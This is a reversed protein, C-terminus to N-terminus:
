PLAIALEPQAGEGAGKAGDLPLSVIFTTGRPPNPEFAIRGGHKEVVINRAIALGQGTGKGVEKTTFFPDFVRSGIQPAIGCGTDSVSIVAEGEQCRTRVCIEGRAGSTKMVDGIAHAANVLLNLFVQNLDGIHCCVPPLEGFDTVVEAVYKLENRAVILADALAKNLDAPRKEDGGPHAFSKMARVITAVREVGDLSQLLAKPIEDELYQLDANNRAAYIAEVIEPLIKAASAAEVLREYQALIAQREEFADRLFRLNDGVYQIPTNIEHAIGAALQGVAELRQAHRLELELRKQETVDQATVLIAGRGHFELFHDAIEVDLIRGEKSVHKRLGRWPNTPGLERVTRKLRAHDDAPYIDTLYMRLFEEASYGYTRCAADNVEVIELTEVDCVFIAHPIASFLLRFSAERAEMEEVMQKWETVDRSIGVIMQVPPMGALVPVKTTAMWRSEGSRSVREVKSIVPQGSSLIAQHDELIRGSTDPDFYDALSRGVAAAPDEVGLVSASAKNIRIFKDQADIFYIKDPIHDLLIRLLDREHALESQVRSLPCMISREITIHVLIGAIILTAAFLSLAFWRLQSSQSQLHRMRANVDSALDLDLSAVMGGLRDAERGLRTVQAELDPPISDSGAPVRPYTADAENLFRRMDAALSQAAVSRARAIRRSRAIANLCEMVRDGEMAARDLGAADRLLFSDEYGKMLRTFASRASHGDQSAPVLANALASLDRESKLRGVYDAITSFSYGLAFIGISLWIRLRINLGGM